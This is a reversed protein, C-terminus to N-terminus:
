QSQEVDLMKYTTRLITLGRSVRKRVAEKTLGLYEAIETYKENCVFRLLLCIADEESLRRLAERLLEREAYLDEMTIENSFPKSPVIDLDSHSSNPTSRKQASQKKLFIMARNTAIRYLWPALPHTQVFRIQSITRTNSKESRGAFQTPPATWHPLAHYAAIFTEQAVDRANEWDGLLNHLYTLLLSEYSQVIWRFADPDHHIVRHVIELEEVGSLNDMAITAVKKNHM